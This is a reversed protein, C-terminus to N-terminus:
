SKIRIRIIKGKNVLLVLIKKIILSFQNIFKMRKINNNINILVGM